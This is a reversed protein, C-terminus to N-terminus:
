TLSKKFNELWGLRKELLSIDHDLWDILYGEDNAHHQHLDDLRALENETMEILLEAQTSREDGDLL